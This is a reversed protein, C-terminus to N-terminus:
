HVNYLDNITHAKSEIGAYMCTSVIYAAARLESCIYTSVYISFHLATTRTQTYHNRNYMGFGIRNRISLFTRAYKYGYTKKYTQQTNETKHVASIQSLIPKATKKTHSNRKKIIYRQTQTYIKSCKKKAKTKQKRTSSLRHTVSICM